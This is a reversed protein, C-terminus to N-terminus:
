QNPYFIKPKLRNEVAKADFTGDTGRQKRDSVMITATAVLQRSPEVGVPYGEYQVLPTRVGFGAGPGLGFQPMLFAPKINVLEGVANPAVVFYAHGSNLTIEAARFLLQNWLTKPSTAANGSVTIRYEGPDIRQNSYGYGGNISPQYLTPKFTTCGAIFQAICLVLASRWFTVVANRM